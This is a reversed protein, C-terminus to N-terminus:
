NSTTISSQSSTATNNSADKSEAVFYYTTNPTLGTLTFSHSTGLTANSQTAASALVLPSSTGFYVKGTAAENTNWTITATTSAASSAVVSNLVPAVVDLAVTTFTMNSSTATNNAADKSWVRFNYTTNATLGTLVVSHATVLSANLATTNGYATTTGYEVQTTSNENTTWNITAGGTTVASANVGSIVPMTTDPTTTATNGGCVGLTDGHTMHGFLAASSIYKTEKESTPKHCIAIKNQGPRNDKDDDDDDDHDNGHGSNGSGSNNSGSNGTSTGMNWKGFIENLKKLTKPGVNGAQEIGHKKQFRKIALWTKLGYYGSITGEPYISPDSALMQQLLKVQEGRSGQKMQLALQAMIQTQQQQATNIQAQLAAIQALLAQINTSSATQASAAAPAALMGAIVLAAAAKKFAHM